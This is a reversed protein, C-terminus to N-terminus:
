SPAPYLGDWCICFQMPLYPQRNEHAAPSAAGAAGFTQAALTVDPTGTATYSSVNTPTTGSVTIARSLWSDAAPTATMNAIVTAPATNGPLFKSTVTHTHPAMQNINLAVTEAGAKQAITRPTLGPGTGTGMVVQGQLNPVNFYTKQDGGFFPGIVAYLPTYQQIQLQRGDCPLWGQPVYTYPLIRIEGIFADM